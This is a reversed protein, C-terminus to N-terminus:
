TVKLDSPDVMLLRGDVGGYKYMEGRIDELVAELSNPLRNKLWTSFPARHPRSMIDTNLNYTCVFIKRERHISM